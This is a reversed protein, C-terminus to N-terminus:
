KAGGNKIYKSYIYEYLEDRFGCVNNRIRLFIPFLYHKLDEDQEIESIDKFEKNAVFNLEGLMKIFLKPNDEQLDKLFNLFVERKTINSELWNKIETQKGVNDWSLIPVSVCSSNNENKYIESNLESKDNINMNKEGEKQIHPHTYKEPSGGEGKTNDLVKLTEMSEFNLLKEKWEKSLSWENAYGIGQGRKELIGRIELEELTRTLTTEPLKTLETLHSLKLPTEKGLFIEIIKRKKDPISDIAIKRIIQLNESPNDEILKLGSLLQSLQTAIRPPLEPDPIYDIDRKYGNRIIQSRTKAVLGSLTIIFEYEDKTLVINKKEKLIFNLFERIEEQLEIRVNKINEQNNLSKLIIEKIESETYNLRWLLFREGLIQSASYHTEWIQTVGGIIGIKGEWDIKEGTGFAKSYKGDYIERLQSFIACRKEKPLELITTFDKILLITPIGSPIKLLLGAERDKGSIFTQPTLDSLPIVNEAKKLLFILETKGSSSPSVILVWVPNGEINNALYVGLVLKINERSFVLYKQIDEVLKQFHPSTNFNLGTKNEGVEESFYVCGISGRNNIIKKM